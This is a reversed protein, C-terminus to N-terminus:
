SESIDRREGLDDELDIVDELGVAVVMAVNDTFRLM